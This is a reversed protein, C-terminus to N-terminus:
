KSYKSFARAGATVVADRDAQDRTEAGDKATVLASPTVGRLEDADAERATIMAKAQAKQAKLIAVALEAASMGNDYKAAIVLDEFGAVAVDEIAQLRAREQAVGAQVGENRIAEVLDPHEAKLKTMDM